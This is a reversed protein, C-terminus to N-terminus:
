PRDESLSRRRGSDHRAHRGESPYAGSDTAHHAPSSDATLRLHGGSSSRREPTRHPYGGRGLAKALENGSLKSGAFKDFRRNEDRGRWFTSAQPYRPRIAPFGPDSPRMEPLIRLREPPMGNGNWPDIATKRLIWTLIATNASSRVPATATTLSKGEQPEAPESARPFAVNIRCSTGSQELSVAEVGRVRMSGEQHALRLLPYPTTPHLTSAEVPLALGLASWLLSVYSAHPEGDSAPAFSSTVVGIVLGQQDLVPDGSMGGDFAADTHFCPFPLMSRDRRDLHIELVKGTSRRPDVAIRAIGKEDVRPRSGPYGYATIMSGAPPPFVSIEPLYGEWSYDEPLPHEPELILAAIDISPSYGYRRVKWKTLGGSPELQAFDLGFRTDAIADPPLRGEFRTFIEDIVHRATLAVNPAVLFGTGMAVLDSEDTGAVLLGFTRIVGDGPM